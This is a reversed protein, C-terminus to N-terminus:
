KKWALAAVCKRVCVVRVTSQRCCSSTESYHIALDKLFELFHPMLQINPVCIVQQKEIIKQIQELIGSQNLQVFCGVFVLIIPVIKLSFYEITESEQEALTLLKGIIGFPTQTAGAQRNSVNLPVYILSQSFYVCSLSKCKKLMVANILLAKTMMLFIVFYCHVDYIIKDFVKM